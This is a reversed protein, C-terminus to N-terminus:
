FETPTPFGIVGVSILLMRTSIFLTQFLFHHSYCHGTESDIWPRMETRMKGSREFMVWLTSWESEMIEWSHLCCVRSAVLVEQESERINEKNTNQPENGSERIEIRTGQVRLNPSFRRKSDTLYHFSCLDQTKTGM